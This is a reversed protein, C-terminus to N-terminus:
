MKSSLCMADAQALYDRVNPVTGVYKFQLVMDPVLTDYLSKFTENSGLWLVKVNPYDKVLKAFAKILLEQNKVKQCSAPHIFLLQDDNDVLPAMCKGYYQPVGNYVMSADMKYYEDFSVKSEDSITVPICKHHQFMYFRSWRMINRGAERRAESHITAVFKVKRLLITSLLIYPISGVHAHVVDYGGRKIFKYLRYYCGFDFGLKKHLSSHHSKSSLEKLLDNDKDIDFLTVVDCEYGQHILENILGVTFHEAGGSGLAPLVQLIKM